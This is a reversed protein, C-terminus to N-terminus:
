HHNESKTPTKGEIGEIGRHEGEGPVTNYRVESSNALLGTMREVYM